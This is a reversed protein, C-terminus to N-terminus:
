RERAGAAHDRLRGAVQAQRALRQVPAQLPQPDVPRSPGRCALAACRLAVAGEGALRPLTPSPASSRRAAYPTAGQEEMWHMAITRGGGLRGGSRPPLLQFAALSRGM